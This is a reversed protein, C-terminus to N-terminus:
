KPIVIFFVARSKQTPRNSVFQEGCEVCPRPDPPAPPDHAALNAGYYLDRLEPSQLWGLVGLGMACFLNDARDFEITDWTGSLFHRLTREQMNAEDALIVIPSLAFYGSAEATEYRDLYNQVVPRLPAAPIRVAPM